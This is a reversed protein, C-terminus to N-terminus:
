VRDDTVMQAAKAGMVDAEKELGADDNVGIGALQTTAQVRGQKQQVVHWAEHPLHKEQGPAMHIDTGQAYAHANMQAPKNSNRHVKVDDVSVGSLGEIGSSLSAPLGNGQRQVTGKFKGQLMDEDEMRQLPGEFKGQLMEEDEPMRQAVFKGQLEDEEMRQLPTQAQMQSIRNTAPSADAQAQLASLRSDSKRRSAPSPAVHPQARESTFIQAM